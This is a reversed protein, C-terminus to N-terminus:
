TLNATVASFRLLSTDPDQKGKDFWAAAVTNWICDLTKKDHVQSQTGNIVGYLGASGDAAVFRAPQPGHITKDVLDTGHATIFWIYAATDDDSPPHCQCWDAATM